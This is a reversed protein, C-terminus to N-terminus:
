QLSLFSLCARDSESFLSQKDAGSGKHGFVRLGVQTGQPLKSVFSQIAQKALDMKVRGTVPDEM